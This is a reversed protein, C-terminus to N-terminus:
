FLRKSYVGIEDSLGISVEFPYPQQWFKFDPMNSVSIKNSSAIRGLTLHPWFDEIKTISEIGMHNLQKYVAIQLNLLFSAPVVWLGVWNKGLHLPGHGPRIYMHSFQISVPEQIISTIKSQISQLQGPVTVFQSLTVHPLAKEGLLYLDTQGALNSQALEVLTQAFVKDQPILAINFHAAM